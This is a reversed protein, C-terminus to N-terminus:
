PIGAPKTTGVTLNDCLSGNSGTEMASFMSFEVTDPDRFGLGSYVLVSDIYLDWTQSAYDQRVTYRHYINNALPSSTVKVWGSSVGGYAYIDGDSNMSFVTAIQQPFSQIVPHKGYAPIETKDIKSYFDIWVTQEGTAGIFHKAKATVGTAAAFEVAQTGSYANNTLVIVADVPSVYWRNQGNLSGQVVLPAEFDETFPLGMYQTYSSPPLFPDLGRAIETGDSMGDNDSDASNPDTDLLYESLNNLADPEEDDSAGNGLTQFNEWEWWDPLGDADTDPDILTMNITEQGDVVRPNGSYEARAETTDLLGDNDSDRWAKIYYNTDNLNPVLYTGPEMLFDSHNTSWSASNTVAIIYVSGTQKGYYFITGKVNPPDDPNDPDTQVDNMFWEDGDDVGDGDTDIGPRYCTVFRLPGSHPTAVDFSNTDTATNTAILLEWGRIILNTCGIINIPKDRLETPYSVTVQVDNSTPINPEIASICLVDANTGGAAMMMGASMPLAEAAPAMASQEAEIDEIVMAAEFTLLHGTGVIKTPDYILSHLRFEKESVIRDAYNPSTAFYEKTFWLPDYDAPRKIRMLIRGDYGAILYDDTKQELSITIPYTMVGNAGIIGEKSLGNIFEAPFLDSKMNIILDGFDVRQRHLSNTDPIMIPLIQKAVSDYVDTLEKVSSVTKWRKSVVTDSSLKDQAFSYVSVCFIVAVVSLWRKMMKVKRIRIM